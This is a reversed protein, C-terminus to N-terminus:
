GKFRSALPTSVGVGQHALHSAERQVLVSTLSRAKLAQLNGGTGHRDKEHELHIALDGLVMIGILRKESDVVPMRSIQLWRARNM